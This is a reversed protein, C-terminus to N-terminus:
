RQWWWWQLIGGYGCGNDCKNSTNIVKWTLWVIYFLKTNMNVTAVLCSFFLNNKAFFHEDNCKNSTNIVKWTLWVVYFLKTNMKLPAVLCPFFLNSKCGFFIFFLLMMVLLMWVRMQMHTDYFFLLLIRCKGFTECIRCLNELFGWETTNSLYITIPCPTRTQTIVACSKM